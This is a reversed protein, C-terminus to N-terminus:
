KAKTMLNKPICFRGAGYTEHGSTKDKFIIFLKGDGADTAALRYTKGQHNFVAHGVM